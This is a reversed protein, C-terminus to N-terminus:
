EHDECRIKGVLAEKSNSKGYFGGWPLAISRLIWAEKEHLSPNLNVLKVGIKTTPYNVSRFLPRRVEDIQRRWPFVARGLKCVELM